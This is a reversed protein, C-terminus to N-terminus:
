PCPHQYGDYGIYTRTRPDYSRFRRMCDRVAAEEAQAQSRAAEAAIIGGIVGIGIGVGIAGASPGRHGRHYHRPGGRGRYRQVQEIHSGAVAPLAAAGVGVGIAAASAPTGAVSMVVALAGTLAGLVATKKLLTMQM